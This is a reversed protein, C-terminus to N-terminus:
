GTTQSPPAPQFHALLLAAEVTFQHRELMQRLAQPAACVFQAVEGDQNQPVCTAPVEAIYCDAREVVYGLADGAHAPKQLVLSGAYRLDHLQALQLGAEEWTERALAQELSDSAPVMGGMLTDWLGPDTPKDWARQQIWSHGRPDQGLLHVARSAIGLVRVAGREVCALRRGDPATVALKENRWLRGVPSGPYTRLAEALLALSDDAAGLLAWGADQAPALVTGLWQPHAAVFASFFVPEVSGVLDCGLMLPVRPAAPAQCATQRLAALWEPDWQCQPAPYAPPQM